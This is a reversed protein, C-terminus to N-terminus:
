VDKSRREFTMREVFGPDEALCLMPQNSPPLSYFWDNTPPAGTSLFITNPSNACPVTLVWIRAHHLISVAPPEMMGWRQDHTLNLPMKRIAPDTKEMAGTIDMSQNWTRSRAAIVQEQDWFPRGALVGHDLEALFGPFTTTYGANGTPGQVIQQFDEDQLKKTSWIDYCYVEPPLGQSAAPAGDAQFTDLLAKYGRPYIPEQIDWGQPFLIKRTIEIGTLDTSNLEAFALRGDKTLCYYDARAKTLSDGGTPDTTISETLSDV